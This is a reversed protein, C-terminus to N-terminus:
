EFFHVRGSELDHVGGVIRISGNDALEKLIESQEVLRKMQLCVNKEICEDAFDTNSSTKESTKSGASAEQVAPEIKDLLGALNGMEVKNIAGIVAGCGSHGIM